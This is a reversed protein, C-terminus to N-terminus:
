QRCRFLAANLVCWDFPWPVFHFLPMTPDAARPDNADDTKQSSVLFAPNQVASDTGTRERDGIFNLEGQGAYAKREFTGNTALVICGVLACWVMGTAVSLRESAQLTCRLLLLFDFV